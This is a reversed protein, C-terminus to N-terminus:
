AADHIARHLESMKLLGFPVNGFSVPMRPDPSVSRWAQVCRSRFPAPKAAVRLNASWVPAACKADPGFESPALPTFVVSQTPGASDSTPVILILISSLM